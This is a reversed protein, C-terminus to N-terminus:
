TMCFISLVLSVLIEVHKGKPPIIMYSETKGRRNSTRAIIPDQPSAYYTDVMPGDDDRVTYSLSNSRTHSGSPAHHSSHYSAPTGRPDVSYSRSRPSSHSLSSSSHPPSSGSHSPSNSHSSSRWHSHPHPPSSQQSHSSRNYRSAYPNSVSSDPYITPPPSYRGSRSPPAPAQGPATRNVWHATRTSM